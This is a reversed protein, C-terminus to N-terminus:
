RQTPASLTLITLKFGGLMWSLILHPLLVLHCSRFRLPASIFVKHRTGTCPDLSAYLNWAFKFTWSVPIQSQLSVSAETDTREEWSLVLPPLLILSLHMSNGPQRLFTFTDFGTNSLSVSGGIEPRTQASSPVVKRDNTMTRRSGFSVCLDFDYISICEVLKIFGPLLVLSFYLFLPCIEFLSLISNRPTWSSQLKRTAMGDSLLLHEMM